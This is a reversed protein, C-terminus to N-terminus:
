FINVRSASQTRAEEELQEAYVEAAQAEAAWCPLQEDYSRLEEWRELRSSSDRLMIVVVYKLYIM